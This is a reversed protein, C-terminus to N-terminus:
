SISYQRRRQSNQRPTPRRQGSSTFAWTTTSVRCGPAVTRALRRGVDPGHRYGPDANPGAQHDLILAGEFASCGRAGMESGAVRPAALSLRVDSIWRGAFSELWSVGRCFVPMTRIVPFSRRNRCSFGSSDPELRAGGPRHCRECSRGGPSQDPRTKQHCGRLYLTPGQLHHRRCVPRSFGEPADGQCCASLGASPHVPVGHWPRFDWSVARGSPGRQM